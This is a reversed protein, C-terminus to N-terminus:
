LTINLNWKQSVPQLGTDNRKVTSSKWAGRAIGNHSLFPEIYISNKSPCAWHIYLKLGWVPLTYPTKTPVPCHIYLKREFVSLTYPTKIAVMSCGRGILQAGCSPSQKTHARDLTLTRFKIIMSDDFCSWLKSWTDNRKVSFSKRAVVKLRVLPLATAWHTYIKRRFHGIHM